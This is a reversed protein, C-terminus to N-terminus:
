DAAMMTMAGGRAPASPSSPQASNVRLSVIGGCEGRAPVPAPGNRAQRATIRIWCAGGSIRQLERLAAPLDDVYELVCSVFVVVSNDALPVHKCIDAQIANPATSPRIDIVIDGAGPGATAGLDPAGVVALPKGTQRAYALAASYMDARKRKRRLWWLAEWAGLGAAAHWFKM